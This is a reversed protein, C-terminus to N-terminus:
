RPLDKLDVINEPHVDEPPKTKQDNAELTQNSIDSTQNGFPDVPTQPGTYHVVRIQPEETKGVQPEPSARGSSTSRTSDMSPGIELRAAEREFGTEQKGSGAGREKYFSPRMLEEDRPRAREGGAPPSQEEHIMFPRDEEREEYKTSGVEQQPPAFAPRMMEPEGAAAQPSGVSGSTALSTSGYHYLKQIEPIVPALIKVQIERALEDALRRDVNTEAVIEKALDEVHVLGLVVYGLVGAIKQIREETLHHVEGILWLMDGVELSAMLDRLNQPVAGLREM